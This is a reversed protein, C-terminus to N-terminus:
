ADEARGYAALVTRRCDFRPVFELVERMQRTEVVRGYRLLNVLHEPLSAGFPRLAQLAHTFQRTPLPQKRRRGLWLIRSLYIQGTCSINFTGRRPRDVAHEIALVADREHIFQLRPDRGAPTPVIPLLLYRSIPNGITPGLIPTFRLVTFTVGPLEGALQEVSAEIDRLNNEYRTPSATTPTAEELVSPNRPGCGYVAADSRVIVTGVSPLRTIAGFLAQAGLIVAADARERGLAASRDLTQLHVVVTPHLGMVHEAFEVTDLSSRHFESAFPVRPEVEDVPFVVTDSREELRRVLHGGM